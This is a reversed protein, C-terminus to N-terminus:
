VFEEMLGGGQEMRKLEAVKVLEEDGGGFERRIEALLEGATEFELEGTELEEM